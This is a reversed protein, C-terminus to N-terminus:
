EYSEDEYRSLRISVPVTFSTPFISRLERNFLDAEQKKIFDGVRVKYYPNEYDLYSDVEPYLSDFESKTDLAQARRSTAFIQVRFGKVNEIKGNLFKHREILDELLTSADVYLQTTDDFYTSVDIQVPTFLPDEIDSVPQTNIPYSFSDVIMYVTVDEKEYQPYNFNVRKQANMESLSLLWFSFLAVIVYLINNMDHYNQALSGICIDVFHQDNQL